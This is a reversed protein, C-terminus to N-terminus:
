VIVLFTHCKPSGRNEGNSNYALHSWSGERTQLYGATNRSYALHSWSGERTQLYGATNRSEKSAQSVIKTKTRSNPNKCFVEL